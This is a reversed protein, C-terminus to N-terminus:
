CCVPNRVTLDAHSTRVHPRPTQHDHGGAEMKMLSALTLTLTRRPFGGPRRRTARLIHLCEVIFMAKLNNWSCLLHRRRRSITGVAAVEPISKRGFWCVSSHQSRQGRVPNSDPTAAGDPDVGIPNEHWLWFGARVWVQHEPPPATTPLMGATELRRVVGTSSSRRRHFVRVRARQQTQLGAKLPPRQCTRGGGWWWWQKLCSHQHTGASGGGAGAGSGRRSRSKWEAELGGSLHPCIKWLPRSAVETTMNGLLWTM